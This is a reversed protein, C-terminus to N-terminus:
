RREAFSTLRRQARACRARGKKRPSRPWTRTGRCGANQQFVGVVRSSGSSVTSTPPEKVSLSRRAIDSGPPTGANPSSRPGKRSTRAALCGSGQRSSSGSTRVQRSSCMSASRAGCDRDGREHDARHRGARRHLSDTGHPTVLRHWDRPADLRNPVHCIADNSVVASFDCAPFPLSQSADARQFLVSDAVGRLAALREGNRVGGENIDVGTIRCGTAAALYVAPGGSGSGVELM